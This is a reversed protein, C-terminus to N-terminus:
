FIIAKYEITNNKYLALSLLSLIAVLAISLLNVLKNFHKTKDIESNIVQSTNIPNVQTQNNHKIEKLNTSLTIIESFYGSTIISKANAYISFFLFILFILRKM